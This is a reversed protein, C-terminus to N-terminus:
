LMRTRVPLSEFDTNYAVFYVPCGRTEEVGRSSKSENRPFAQQPSFKDSTQRCRNEEKTGTECNTRGPPAFVHLKFEVCRFPKNEYTDNMGQDTPILICFKPQVSRQLLHSLLCSRLCTSHVACLVVCAVRLLVVNVSYVVGGGKSALKFMAFTEKSSHKDCVLFRCQAGRYQRFLAHLQDVHCM